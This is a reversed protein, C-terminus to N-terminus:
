GIYIEGGEDVYEEAGEDVYEEESLVVRTITVTDTAIGGCIDTVTLRLIYTGVTPLQITPNLAASHPNFIIADGSVQSWTYTVDLGSASAAMTFETAATFTDLGANATVPLCKIFEIDQCVVAYGDNVGVRLLWVGGGSVTVEPCPITDDDFTLGAPGSVIEWKYDFPVQIFTDDDVIAASGCGYGDRTVQIRDTQLVDGVAMAEATTANHGRTWVVPGISAVQIQENTRLNTAVFGVRLLTDDDVPITTVIDDVATTATVVYDTQVVPLYEGTRVNRIVMPSDELASSIPNGAGDDIKLTTTVADISEDAYVAVHNADVACLNFEHSSPGGWPIEVDEVKTNVGPYDEIDFGLPSGLIFALVEEYTTGDAYIVPHLFPVFDGRFIKEGNSLFLRPVLKDGQVVLWQNISNYASDSAPKSPIRINGPAIRAVHEKCRVNTATLMHNQVNGSKRRIKGASRPRFFDLGQFPGTYTVPKANLIPM